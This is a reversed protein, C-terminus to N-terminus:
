TRSDLPESDNQEPEPPLEDGVLEEVCSGDCDPEDCYPCAV